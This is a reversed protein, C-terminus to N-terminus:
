PAAPKAGAEPRAGIVIATDHDVPRNDLVSGNIREWQSAAGAKIVEVITYSYEGLRGANKLIFERRWKPDLIRRSITHTYGRGELSALAADLCHRLGNRTLNVPGAVPRSQMLVLTSFPLQRWPFFVSFAQLEDGFFTGYAECGSDLLRPIDEPVRQQRENKTRLMLKSRSHFVRAIADADDASLRKAQIGSPM